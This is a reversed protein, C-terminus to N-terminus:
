RPGTTDERARPERALAAAGSPRESATQAGEIWVRGRWGHAAAEHAIGVAQARDATPFYHTASRTRVGVFYRTM